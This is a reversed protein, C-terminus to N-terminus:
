AAAADTRAQEALRRKADDWGIPLRDAPVEWFTFTSTRMTPRLGTMIGRHPEARAYAYLAERSEWASLTYFVRKAPRAILSAGYAGPASRVQRWAALSKWFFRPVDKLSRVEFRSAMVVAQAHPPAANPTVWPLTPM